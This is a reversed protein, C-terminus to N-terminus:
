VGWLHELETMQEPGYLDVKNFLLTVPIRYAETSVLFRDIFPTLTRPYALSIMLWAMDVNCAILQYQRSLNSSKRILYNTREEIHTITGSEGDSAPDFRVRDGVAVPNTAKIGHIRFKGRISCRYLGGDATRVTYRSGTSKIVLGSKM